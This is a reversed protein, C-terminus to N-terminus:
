NEMLEKLEEFLMTKRGNEPFIEKLTHRFYGRLGYWIPLAYYHGGTEFHQKLENPSKINIVFIQLGHKEVGDTLVQNIHKDGFGYGIILIKKNGEAIVKKFLKYYWKLLPEKKILRLKNIGIVMQNTGDSSKWGYSGHLKVYCLNTRGKGSNMLDKEANSEADKKSLTVFYQSTLEQSHKGYINDTFEKPVGPSYFGHEREILTDQNLTFFLGKENTNRNGLFMTAIDGWNGWSPMNSSTRWEKVVDDLNKYVREIVRGIMLREEESSNDSLITSYASEFNLDKLLLERLNKNAQIEKDHLIQQWMESGLFGNFNKTFGAGTLLILNKSKFEIM